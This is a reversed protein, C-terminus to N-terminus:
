VSVVWDTDDPNAGKAPPPGGAVTIAGQNARRSNMNNLQNWGRNGAQHTIIDIDERM